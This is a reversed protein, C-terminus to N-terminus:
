ANVTTAKPAPRVGPSATVTVSRDSSAPV